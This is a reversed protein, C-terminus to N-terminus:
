HIPAQHSSYGRDHLVLMFDSMNADGAVLLIPRMAIGDRSEEQHGDEQQRHPSTIGRGALEM